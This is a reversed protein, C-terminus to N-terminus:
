FYFILNGGLIGANAKGGSDSKAFLNNIGYQYTIQLRVQKFGGTIGVVPYISVNAVNSFDKITLDTGSVVESEQENEYTLKGNIQILPGFEISLHDEIIKYSPTLFIQASSLKMKVDGGSITETYFNNESFQIGYVMDFNNYWNGRLSLGINWGSAPRLQFDNTFFDIQNIGASIGIRNADRRGYQASSLSTVALCLFLLKKM